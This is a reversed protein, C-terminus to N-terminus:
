SGGGSKALTSNQSGNKDTQKRVSYSWFNPPPNEWNQPVSLKHILM